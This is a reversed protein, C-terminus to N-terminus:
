GAAVNPVQVVALFLGLQRITNVFKDYEVPKTIYNNCGLAHCHAVEHPDDTTTIMIVPMKRLGPDAKIQRLVETGDIKPMRIDLLLIYPIDPTRHPGDGLCFLYDVIEQGDQFRIIENAIGSRGLNKQILGAHGDDDDAVLIIFEKNM